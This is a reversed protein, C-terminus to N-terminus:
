KGLNRMRSPACGYVRQFQRSFYNVSNFGCAYCIEQLTQSTDKLQRHAMQLRYRILAEVPSSGMFVKFCRGAESRSVHAASAIDSLSINEAYHEHIYTLMQHLRIQAHFHGRYADCRPIQALHSFILELIASLERQVAMEYCPEQAQLRRYISRVLRNVEGQWGDDQHFVIYPVSECCAIPHIYKQYIATSESAVLAGSFVINPMPDAERSDVQKIGHLVNGNVFISEGPQLIIHQLGIQFDLERHVATAIEFDPHWHLPGACNPLAGLEDCFFSIPFAAPDHPILERLRHDLIISM